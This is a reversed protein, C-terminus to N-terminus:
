SKEVLYDDDLLTFKDCTEKLHHLKGGQPYAVEVHKGLDKVFQVAGVFDGDASIIIATDYLNKAANGVMDTALAVDVGKEVRKGDPRKALRGLKVELYPVSRLYEFFSQQHRYQEQGDQANTAANYYYTRVLERDPGRLAKILREFDIKPSKGAAKLAHYFNSGDIFICVREQEPM